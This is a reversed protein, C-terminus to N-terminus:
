GVPQLEACVAGAYNREVLYMGRHVSQQLTLGGCSVLGESFSKQSIKESTIVDEGLIRSGLASQMPQLKELPINTQQTTPKQM